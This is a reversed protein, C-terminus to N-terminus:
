CSLVVTCMMVHNKQLIETGTFYKVFPSSMFIMMMVIMMMMMMLMMIIIIM